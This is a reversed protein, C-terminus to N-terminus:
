FSKSEYKTQLWLQSFRRSIMEVKALDYFQGFFFMTGMSVLFNDRATITDRCGFLWISVLPNLGSEDSPHIFFGGVLTKLIAM